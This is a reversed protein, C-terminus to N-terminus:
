RPLKARYDTDISPRAKIAPEALAIRDRSLATSPSIRRSRPVAPALAGHSARARAPVGGGTHTAASPFTVSHNISRYCRSALQQGKQSCLAEIAQRVRHDRPCFRRQSLYRVRESAASRVNIEPSSPSPAHLASDACTTPIAFPTPRPSPSAPRPPLRPPDCSSASTCHEESDSTAWAHSTESWRSSMDV